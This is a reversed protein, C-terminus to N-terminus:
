QGASIRHEPGTLFATLAAIEAPKLGLNPMPFSGSPYTKSATTPDALVSAVYDAQLRSLRIEPGYAITGTGPVTKILHCTACGKAMFLHQGREALPAPPPAKTDAAIAPIPDISSGAGWGSAVDISWVGATPVVFTATYWGGRANAVLATVKNGGQRAVISGALDDRLTQGHQRVTYSIRTTQGAILYEPLDDVTVISWGGAGTAAATLVLLGAVVGVNLLRQTM